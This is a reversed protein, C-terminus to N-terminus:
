FSICTEREVPLLVDTYSFDFLETRLKIVAAGSISNLEWKSWVSINPCQDPMNKIVWDLMPLM